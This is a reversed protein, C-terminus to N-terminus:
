PAAVIQPLDAPPPTKVVPPEVAPEPAAAPTPLPDVVAPTEPEEPEAAMSVAVVTTCVLAGGVALGRASPSLEPWSRGERRLLDGVPWQNPSTGSRHTAM